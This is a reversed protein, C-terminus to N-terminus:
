RIIPPKLVLGDCRAPVALGWCHLQLGLPLTHQSMFVECLVGRATIKRQRVETDRSSSTHIAKNVKERCVEQKIIKILTMGVRLLHKRPLFFFFPSFFSLFYDGLV